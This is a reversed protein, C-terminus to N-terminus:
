RPTTALNSLIKAASAHNNNNEYYKWLLEMVDSNEPKTNVSNVLYLELTPKQISMLEGKMQKSLMWDYIATHLLEDSYQLITNIIQYLQVFFFNLSLLLDHLHLEESVLTNSKQNGSTPSANDYIGDLM